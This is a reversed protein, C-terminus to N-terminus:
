KLEYKKVFNGELLLIDEQRSLPSVQEAAEDPTISYM